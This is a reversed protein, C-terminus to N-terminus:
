CWLEIVESSLNVNADVMVVVFVTEVRCILM